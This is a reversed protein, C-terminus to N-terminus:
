ELVHRIGGLCCRKGFSVDNIRQRVGHDFKKVGGEIYRTKM